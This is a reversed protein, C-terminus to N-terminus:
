FIYEYLLFDMWGANETYWRRKDRLEFGTSEYLRHAPTNCALADLRLAKKGLDRSLQKVLEMTARGLGKRQIRSDVCLIHLVAAEKDELSIGWDADRYDDGQRETVAAASIISGCNETYYMAGSNIYDAIMEDTPHKGYIWKGYLDMNESNIIANRYFETLRAFDKEKAKILKIGDMEIKDTM